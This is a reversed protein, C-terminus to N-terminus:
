LEGERESLAVYEAIAEHERRKEDPTLSDWYHRWARCVRCDYRRNAHMRGLCLECRGTPSM